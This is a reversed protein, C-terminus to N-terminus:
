QKGRNFKIGFLPRIWKIRRIVEYLVFCIGFTGALLLVLKAEAPMELPLIIYALAFQVPLHLIYVPYVAASLYRLLSSKRNLYVAGLGLIALM